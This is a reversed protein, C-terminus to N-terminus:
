KNNKNYNDKCNLYILYADENNGFEKVEVFKGIENDKYHEYFYKIKDLTTQTLDAIDKINQYNKDVNTSPVCLLKNDEGAEDYTYLIGIIRVNIVTLPVLEYDTLLLVDLPDGDGSLTNPAYGYNFPYVFSTNFVRDCRLMSLQEDYEYKIKSGRSIEITIDINNEIM